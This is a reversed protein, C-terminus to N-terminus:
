LKPLGENSFSLEWDGNALRKLEADANYIWPYNKYGHGFFDTKFVPVNLKEALDKLIREQSWDSVILDGVVIAKADKLVGSSVLHQLDRDVMYGKGLDELLVIKGAAKIEWATKLSNSVLCINGGTLKGKISTVKNKQVIPLVSRINSYRFRKQQTLMENLYTWNMPDYTHVVEKFVPGHITKSNWVQSMWLHLATLDSYGVLVTNKQPRRLTQMHKMIRGCGYGGRTGWLVQSNSKISASISSFRLFDVNAFNPDKKSELLEIETISWPLISFLLKADAPAIKSSSAILKVKGSRLAQIIPQREAFLRRESINIREFDQSCGALSITLLFVRYKFFVKQM